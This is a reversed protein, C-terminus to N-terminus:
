LTESDRQPGDIGSEHRRAFPYFPNGDRRDGWDLESSTGTGKRRSQEAPGVERAGRRNRSNHSHNIAPSWSLCARLDMWNFCFNDRREPCINNRRDTPQTRIRFFSPISRSFVKKMALDDETDKIKKRVEETLRTYEADLYKSYSEIKVGNHEKIAKRTKVDIVPGTWFLQKILQVRTRDAETQTM